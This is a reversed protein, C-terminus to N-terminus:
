SEVWKQEIYVSYISTVSHRIQSRGYHQLSLTFLGRTKERWFGHVTEDEGRIVGNIFDLTGRSSYESLGM